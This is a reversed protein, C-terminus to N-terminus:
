VSTLIRGGQFTIHWEKGAKRVIIRATFLSGSTELIVQHQDEIVRTVRLWGPLTLWYVQVPQFKYARTHLDVCLTSDVFRLYLNNEEVLIGTLIRGAIARQLSPTFFIWGTKM